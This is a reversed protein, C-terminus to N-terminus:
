LGGTMGSIIIQHEEHSEKGSRMEGRKREFKRCESEAEVKTEKGPDIVRCSSNEVLFWNCHECSVTKCRNATYRRANIRVMFLSRISNIDQRTPKFVM